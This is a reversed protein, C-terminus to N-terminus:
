GLRFPVSAHLEIAECRALIAAANHARVGGGPLVTIRGRAREILSRLREAGELANAAGGSSLVREFGLEVLTELAAAQDLARDFARHFTASAPRSMRLLEACRERDIGGHEDLVGFVVGHAGQEKIRELDRLLEAYEQADPVFSENARPRVMAHVRVNRPAAQELSAQLLEADPTLGGLDLRSCV